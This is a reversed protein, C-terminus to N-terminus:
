KPRICAVFVTFHQISKNKVIYPTSEKSRMVNRVVSRATSKGLRSTSKGHTFIVWEYDNEYAERLASVVRSKVEELWEYYPGERFENHFDIELHKGLKRYEVWNGDGPIFNSSM